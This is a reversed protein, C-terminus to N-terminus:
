LREAAKEILSEVEQIAQDLLEKSKKQAKKSEIVLDSLENMLSKSLIPIRLKRIQEPKWHLILAGSCDRTAQMRCIKSNIVLALYEKPIDLDNLTLNLIGSSIIGEVEEDVVYCTGITGDKTLLIDDVQPQHSKYQNYTISSIYKDSGGEVIGEKSLNSVRIFLPGEETYLASGVEYGKNFMCISGLYVTDLNDLHIALQRYKSQYFDADSRNNTVIESFSTTYSKENKFQIDNLGLAKDLLENAKNYIMKSKEQLKFAKRLFGGIEKEYEFLIEPILFKSIDFPYIEIQGSSGRYNQDFQKLGYKSNLFATVMFPDVVGNRLITIHGDCYAPKDFHWISTRGLTGVGTSTVLIDNKEVGGRANTNLFQQTVYEQRTKNFNMFGVNVSRLVRITGNENYKPQSGRKIYSFLTGLRRCSGTKQLFSLNEEFDKRFYEADFRDLNINSYQVENWVAM